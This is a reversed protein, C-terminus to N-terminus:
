CSKTTREDKFVEVIEKLEKSVYFFLVGTNRRNGEKKNKIKDILRM